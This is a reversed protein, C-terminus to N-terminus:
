PLYYKVQEGTGQLNKVVLDLFGSPPIGVKVKERTVSMRLLFYQLCGPQGVNVRGFDPGTQTKLFCHFVCRGGFFFM